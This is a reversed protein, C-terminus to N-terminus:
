DVEPMGIQIGDSLHIDMRIQLQRLTLLRALRIISLTIRFASLREVMRLTIM